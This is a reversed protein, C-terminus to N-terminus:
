NLVSIISKMATLIMQTVLSKCTNFRLKNPTKATVLMPAEFNRDALDNIRSLATGATNFALPPPNRGSHWVGSDISVHATQLHEFEM